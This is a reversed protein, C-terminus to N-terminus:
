PIKNEPLVTQQKPYSNCGSFAYGLGRYKCILGFLLSKESDVGKCSAGLFYKM